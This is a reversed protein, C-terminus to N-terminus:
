VNITDLRDYTYSHRQQPILPTNISKQPPPTHNATELQPKEFDGTHNGTGPVPYKHLRNVLYKM